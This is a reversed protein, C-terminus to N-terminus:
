EDTATYTTYTPTDIKYKGDEIVLSVSLTKRQTKEGRSVDVDISIYIYKNDSYLVKVTDYLYEVENEYAPTLDSYVLIYSSTETVRESYRAFIVIDGSSDKVPEFTNKFIIECLEDTYVEKALSKLGQINSVGISSLYEDSAPKYKGSALSPNMDDYPLGVGYFIDNVLTSKELLDRAAAKVVAEDYSRDCSTFLMSLILVPILLVSLKKM